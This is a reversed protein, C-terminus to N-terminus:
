ENIYNYLNYNNKNNACLLQVPLYMTIKVYVSVTYRLKIGGNNERMGERWSKLFIEILKM